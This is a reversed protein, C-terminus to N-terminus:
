QKADVDASVPRVLVAMEAETLGAEGLVEETHEGLRPPLDVPPRQRDFRVAVGPLRVRGLGADEHETFFATALLHPDAVLEEIRLIPTAPIQLRRCAELWATTTQSRKNRNLGLFIAAMGAETTVGTRRTADGELPEVKIVEAGFDALMQSAYPGMLVSSLDIVKVGHLPLTSGVGGTDRENM